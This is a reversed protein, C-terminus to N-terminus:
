NFNPQNNIITENLINVLSAWKEQTQLIEKELKDIQINNDLILKLEKIKMDEIRNVLNNNENTLKEIIIEFHNKIEDM